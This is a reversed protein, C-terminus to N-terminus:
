PWQISVTDRTMPQLNKDSALDRYIELQPFVKIHEKTDM